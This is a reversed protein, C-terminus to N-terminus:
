NDATIGAKRIVAAYKEIESGIFAAFQEQTMGVKARVSKVDVARPCHVQVGQTDGKAHAIAEHLGQKISEFAASM